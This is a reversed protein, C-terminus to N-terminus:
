GSEQQSRAILASTHAGVGRRLVEALNDVTDVDRRISATAPLELPVHGAAEHAARSGPGFRPTLTIGARALLTTTGTGEEDAVMALDHAAAATLTSEVDAVTLAPLDGTLVAVSCLPYQEHAVRIGEGIAANLPDRPAACNGKAPGSPSNQPLEAAGTKRTAACAGTGADSASPHPLEPVIQAGLAELPAAAAPDATVVLVKQVMEAALLAAVTDLAFAEALEGRAPFTEPLASLRSKASANGKVPVM